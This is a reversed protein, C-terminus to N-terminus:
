KWCAMALRSPTPLHEATMVPKCTGTVFTLEVHVASFSRIRRAMVFSSPVSSHSYRRTEADSGPPLAFTSRNPAQVYGLDYSTTTSTPYTPHVPSATAYNTEYGAASTQQPLRNLSLLHDQPLSLSDQTGYYNDAMLPSGASAATVPIAGYSALSANPPGASTRSASTQQTHKAMGNGLGLSPLGHEHSTVYMGQTGGQSGATSSAWPNSFQPQTSYSMQDFPAFRQQSPDITMTMIHSFTPTAITPAVALLVTLIKSILRHDQHV